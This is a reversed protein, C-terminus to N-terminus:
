KISIEVTDRISKIEKPFMMGSKAISDKVFLALDPLVHVDEDSAFIHFPEISQLGHDIRVLDM